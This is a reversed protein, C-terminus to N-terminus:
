FRISLGARLLALHSPTRPFSSRAPAGTEIAFYHDIRDAMEHNAYLVNDEAAIQIRLPPLTTPLDLDLGFNLGPHTEPTSLDLADDAPHRPSLRVLTPAITLQAPLAIPLRLGLGLKMLMVNTTSHAGHATLTSGVSDGVEVTAATYGGENRAFTFAGVLAIGDAGRIPILRGVPVSLRLGAAAGGGGRDEFVADREVGDLRIIVDSTRTWGIQYGAYPTFVIEGPGPRAPIHAQARALSASVLSIAVLVTAARFRM